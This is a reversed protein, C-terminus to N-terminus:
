HMFPNQQQSQFYDSAGFDFPQSHAQSLSSSFPEATYYNNQSLEQSIPGQNFPNQLLYPLPSRLGPYMKSM